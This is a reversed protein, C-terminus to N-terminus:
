EVVDEIQYYYNKGDLQLINILGKKALVKSGWASVKQRSCGVADAIEKASMAEDSSLTSILGLIKIEVEAYNGDTRPAEKHIIEELKTDDEPCRKVKYNSVQSEDYIKQCDPCKYSKVKENIFYPDYESLVSDYIFRIATFEDKEEAYKINNELCIDYDISYLNYNGGYKSSRDEELFHLLFNECFVNFYDKRLPDILIHSAPRDMSKSKESLAKELISNWMDMYFGPILRRKVSGQFQRFYIKRTATMGFNIENLGIKNDPKTESQKWAHQLVLGITRPVGLAQRALRHILEDKKIKFIQDYKVNPAFIQLRRTILLDIFDQMRKLSPVIGGFREVYENLDLPIPFIDRGIRIKDGFNYRDTIVGIKFFMSIKSGLLNRLLNSFSSQEDSNLDSYEDLFIFISDIKAKKRIDNIKNLFDQVNLGRLENYKTESEEENTSKMGADISAGTMSIKAKLEASESVKDKDTKSVKRDVLLTIGEILVREIYELDDLAPNEKKFLLLFSEDFMVELQRKLSDIIQRVFHIEVINNPTESNFLENCNSLDIYIPLIKEDDFYESKKQRLKPSITKLCEYYGRLLLATKGSGRRGSIYNDQKQLISSTNNYFDIYYNELTELEDLQEVSIYDARLISEFANKISQKERQLLSM